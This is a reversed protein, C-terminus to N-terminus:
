ARERSMRRRIHAGALLDVAGEAVLALGWLIWAVGFGRTWAPTAVFLVAAAIWLAASLPTRVHRFAVALALMFGGAVAVPLAVVAVEAEGGSSSLAIGVLGVFAAGLAATGLAFGGVGVWGPRTALTLWTAVLAVLLLGAALALFAPGHETPDDFRYLLAGGAIGAVAGVWRAAPASVHRM